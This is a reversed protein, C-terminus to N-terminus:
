RITLDHVSFPREHFIRWAFSEMNAFFGNILQHIYEVTEGPVALLYHAFISESVGLLSGAMVDCFFHRGLIIRSTTTAFAWSHVVWAIGSILLQQLTPLFRDLFIVRDQMKDVLFPVWVREAQDQWMPIYLWFFTLGMLARTSHGSPFSWRDVAINIFHGRNYEPRPRRVIQKVISVFILDFQFAMFLNFFFARLEPTLKARPALFTAATCPILFVGDASFELTRLFVYFFLGLGQEHVWLSFRKDFGVIRELLNRPKMLQLNHCSDDDDHDQHLPPSPPPSPQFQM